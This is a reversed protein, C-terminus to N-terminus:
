QHQGYRRRDIGVAGNDTSSQVVSQVAQKREATCGTKQEVSGM